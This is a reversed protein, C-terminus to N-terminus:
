KTKHADSFVTIYFWLFIALNIYFDSVVFRYVKSFAKSCNNCTLLILTALQELQLGM